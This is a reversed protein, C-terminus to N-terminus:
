IHAHKAGKISADTLTKEIHASSTEIQLFQVASKFESAKNIWGRASDISSTAIENLSLQKRTPDLLHALFVRFWTNGFKPYSALWYISSM